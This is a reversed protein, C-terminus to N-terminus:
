KFLINQQSLQFLKTPYIKKETYQNDQYFKGILGFIPFNCYILVQFFDIFFNWKETLSYSICFFTAMCFQKQMFIKLNSDCCKKMLHINEKKILFFFYQFDLILKKLWFIHFVFFVNIQLITKKLSIQFNQTVYNRIFRINKM